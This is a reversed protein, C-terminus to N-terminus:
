IVIKLFSFICVIEQNAVFFFDFFYRTNRAKATRVQAAKNAPAAATDPETDEEALSGRGSHGERRHGPTTRPTAQSKPPSSRTSLGSPSLSCLPIGEGIIGSGGHCEFQNIDLLLSNIDTLDTEPGEPLVLRPSVPASNRPTNRPTLKPTDRPTCRPSPKNLPTSGRPSPTLHLQEASNRSSTPVESITAVTVLPPPSTTPGVASFTAIPVINGVAASLAAPTLSVSLSSATNAAPGGNCRGTDGAARM